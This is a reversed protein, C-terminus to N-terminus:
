ILSFCGKKNGERNGNEQEYEDEIRRDSNNKFMFRTM